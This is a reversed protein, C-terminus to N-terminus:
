RKRRIVQKEKRELTSESKQKQSENAMRGLWHLAKTELLSIQLPQIWGLAQRELSSNQQNKVWNLRTEKEQCREMKGM